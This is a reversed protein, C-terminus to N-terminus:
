PYIYNIGNLDDTELTRKKTEGLAISYYMTNNISGSDTEDGLSLWHGLEHTLANQVDYASGSGVTSWTYYTNVVTDVDTTIGFSHTNILLRWHPVPDTIRLPLNTALLVLPFPSHHHLEM